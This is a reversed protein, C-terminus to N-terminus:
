FPVDRNEARGFPRLTTAATQTSAGKPKFPKCSKTMIYGYSLPRDIYISNYIVVEFYLSFIVNLLRDMYTYM